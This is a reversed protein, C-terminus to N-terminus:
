HSRTAKGAAVFQRDLQREPLQMTQFQLSSSKFDARLRIKRRAACSADSCWQFGELARVSSQTGVNLSSNARAGNELLKYNVLHWMVPLKLTIIYGHEQFTNLSSNTRKSCTIIHLPTEASSGTFVPDPFHALSIPSVRPQGPPWVKQVAAHESTDRAGNAAAVWEQNQNWYRIRGVGWMFSAFSKGYVENRAPPLSLLWICSTVNNNSGM